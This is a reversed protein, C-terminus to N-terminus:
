PSLLVVRSCAVASPWWHTKLATLFEWVRLLGEAPRLVFLYVPETVITTM